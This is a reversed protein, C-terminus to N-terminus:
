TRVKVSVDELVMLVDTFHLLVFEEAHGTESLDLTVRLPPPRGIHTMDTDEWVVVDGVSCPPEDWFGGYPGDSLHVVAGRTERKRVADPLVVGGQTAEAAELPKVLLRPGVLKPKVTV